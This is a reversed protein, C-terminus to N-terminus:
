TRSLVYDFCLLICRSTDSDHSTKLIPRDGPLPRPPHPFLQTVSVTVSFLWHGWFGTPTGRHKHLSFPCTIEAVSDNKLILLTFIAWFVGSCLVKQYWFPYVTSTHWMKVNQRHACCNRLEIAEINVVTFLQKLVPHQQFSRAYPSCM